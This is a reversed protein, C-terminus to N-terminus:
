GLSKGISYADIDFLNEAKTRMADVASSILKKVNEVSSLMSALAKVVAEVGQEAVVKLFEVNETVLADVLGKKFKGMGTNDETKPLIGLRDYLDNQIEHLRKVVERMAAYRDDVEKRENKQKAELEAAGPVKEALLPDSIAAKRELVGTERNERTRPAAALDAFRIDLANESM